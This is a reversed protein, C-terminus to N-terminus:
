ASRPMLIQMRKINLRNSRNRRRLNKEQNLHGAILGKRSDVGGVTPIGEEEMAASNHRCASVSGPGGKEAVVIAVAKRAEQVNAGVKTIPDIPTIVKRNHEESMVRIGTLPLTDRMTRATIVEKRARNMM